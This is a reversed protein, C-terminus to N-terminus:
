ACALALAGFFPWLRALSGFLGPYVIHALRRSLPILGATIMAKAKAVVGGGAAAHRLADQAATGGSASSPQTVAAAQSIAAQPMWEVVVEAGLAAELRAAAEEVTAARVAVSVVNRDEARIKVRAPWWLGARAEAQIKARAAAAWGEGKADWRALARPSADVTPCGAEVAARWLQADSWKRLRDWQRVAAREPDTRAGEPDLLRTLIAMAGRDKRRFVVGRAAAKVEPHLALMARRSVLRDVRRRDGLALNSATLM